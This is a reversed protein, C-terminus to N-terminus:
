ANELRHGSVLNEFVLSCAAAFIVLFVKYNHKLNFFTQFLSASQAHFSDLLNSISDIANRKSCKRSSMWVIM